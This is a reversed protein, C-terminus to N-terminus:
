APKKPPLFAELRDAYDAAVGHPSCYTRLEAAFERIRAIANVAEVAKAALEPTDMVGILVDQKSAKDGVMHYITRGVSRGVRWPPVPSTETV